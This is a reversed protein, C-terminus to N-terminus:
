STPIVFVHSRGLEETAVASHPYGKAKREDRWERMRILVCEIVDNWYRSYYYLGHLIREQRHRSMNEKYLWELVAASHANDIALM